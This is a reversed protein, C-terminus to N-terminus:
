LYNLFGEVVIRKAEKKGIGRSQLYFLIEKDIEQISASHEVNANKEYVEIAPVVEIKGGDGLGKIALNGKSGEAGEEVILKGKLRARKKALGKLVVDSKSNKGRHFIEVELDKDEVAFNAEVEADELLILRMSKNSVIKEKGKIMKEEM